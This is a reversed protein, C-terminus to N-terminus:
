VCWEEWPVYAAHQGRSRLWPLLREDMTVGDSRHRPWAGRFTYCLRPKLKAADLLATMVGRRRLQEGEDAIAHRTHVWHVTDVTRGRCFAIWGLVIGDRRYAALIQTDGRGLAANLEPVIYRKYYRWTMSAVGPAGKHGEAFSNRIYAMDDLRAREITYRLLTPDAMAPLPHGPPRGYGYKDLQAEKADMAANAAATERDILEGLATM